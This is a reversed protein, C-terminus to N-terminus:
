PMESTVFASTLGPPRFCTSKSHSPHLPLLRVRIGADTAERVAKLLESYYDDQFSMTFASDVIHGKVQVGIDVKLIDEKSL